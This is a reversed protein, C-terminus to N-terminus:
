HVKKTNRAAGRLKKTKAGFFFHIGRTAYWGLFARCVMCPDRKGHICAQAPAAPTSLLLREQGDKKGKWAM